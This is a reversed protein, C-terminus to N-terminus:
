SARMVIARSATYRTGGSAPSLTLRFTIALRGNRRLARRATASLPVSFSVRGAGVVGRVRSGVLVLTTSSGGSLAGRRAYARARLRTNSRRVRVSGRVAFGRQTAAVSLGFGLPLTAASPPPPPPPPPAVPPPPPPAVPPPPTVAGPVTVSGSMGAGHFGCVFVYTGPATFSCTGSWGPPSPNMPLPGTTGAAPGTLASCGAPAAGLFVVNHMNAGAPYAFGVSGGAAVTVNAPGGAALSFANDTAVVSPPEQATAVDACTLVGVIAAVISVARTPSGM